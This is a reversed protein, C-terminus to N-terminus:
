NLANSVAGLVGGGQLAAIHTTITEALGPVQNLDEGWIAELGLIRSVAAFLGDSEELSWAAAVLQVHEENDKIIWGDEENEANKYYLLQGAIALTLLTPIEGTKAVFDHLTPLIRVTVKSLGNLQLSAIEHRLLPNSFREVVAAAFRTAESEPVGQMSAAPIIENHILAHVFPGMVDHTMADRVTVLGALFSLGALSTHSGNLIRVKILRFPAVDPEYRVNLGLSPFDWKTQLRPPGQIVWLYFPERIVGLSDEYPVEQQLLSKDATNFGTVISDVLTNYFYNHEKVWATFERPLGWSAACRLVLERVLDGNNEVLECPVIDLGASPAGSLARYREFLYATLKAPYSTPCRELDLAEELYTLGAETTNSIVIDISPNRACALFEQWEEYPNLSRSVSRVIDREDVLNGNEMGRRWVTYLGDQQKFERIKQAGTPRPNSVIVRGDYKGNVILQHILWDVLGRLFNGEGIQIMREPYHGDRLEDGNREMWEKSLLM